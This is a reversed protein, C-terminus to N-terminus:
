TQDGVSQEGVSVRISTSSSFQGLQADFLATTLNYTGPTDPTRVTVPFSVAQGPSLDCPIFGIAHGSTQQGDKFWFAWIYVLAYPYEEPHEYDWSALWHNSGTNEVRLVVTQLANPVPLLIPENGKAFSIAGDLEGGGVMEEQTRFSMEAELTRPAFVGAELDIRVDYTGAPPSEPLSLPVSAEEGPELFLPVRFSGHLEFMGGDGAFLVRARQAEEVAMVFPHPTDNRMIFGMNCPERQPATVPTVLSLGIDGAAATCVQKIRLVATNGYDREVSLGPSSLLMNDYAGRERDDVWDRHWIVYDVGLGSLLDLTRQSPFSAMENYIHRYFYPFYSSRGNVIYKWHYTSYYMALGDTETYKVPDETIYDMDWGSYVATRPSLPPVPLEIMRINEQEAAWAYVDPVEGWVPVRYIPLNFTAIELAFVLVLAGTAMRGRRIDKFRRSFGAAIAAIGFGILGSIGLIALLYIRMPTRTFRLIGLRYPLDYFPNSLKGLRPGWSLLFSVLFLLLFFLRYRLSLLKERISNAGPKPAELIPEPCDGRSEEPGASASRRRRLTFLGSLMFVIALIGPFLAAGRFAMTYRLPGPAGGYLVSQPPIRLFDTAHVSYTINESVSREFGPMRSHTRLYPLLLPVLLVGMIAMAAAAKTLRKWTERRRSLAATWILLLGASIACFMTYHWSSLSQLLFFLAFLAIDKREGKELYRFLYLLMFPLFLSFLFWLHDTRAMRFPCYSFFLGAALGGWRSGTLEKVLLHVGFASLVLALFFLFNYTLVPNRSVFYVPAGAVGLIFLHESYTNVDRSPYIINGQFFNTPSTFIARANWATLWAAHLADGYGGLEGTAEYIGNDGPLSNQVHLALPWTFIIAILLFFVLVSFYECKKTCKM